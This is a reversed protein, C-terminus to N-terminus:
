VPPRVPALAEARDSAYSRSLGGPGSEM